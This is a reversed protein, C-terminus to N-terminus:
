LFNLYSPNADLATKLATQLDIIEQVRDDVGAKKLNLLRNLKQLNAIFDQEDQTLGTPPTYAGITGPTKAAAYDYLAQIAELQSNAVKELWDAPPSLPCIHDKIIDTGAGDSYKVKFTIAGANATKSLLEATWAM